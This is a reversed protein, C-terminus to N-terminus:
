EIWRIQRTVADEGRCDVLHFVFVALEQRNDLSSFVRL